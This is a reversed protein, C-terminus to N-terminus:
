LHSMQVWDRDTMKREISHWDMNMGWAANKIAEDLTDGTGFSCLGNPIAVKVKYGWVRSYQKTVTMGVFAVKEEWTIM